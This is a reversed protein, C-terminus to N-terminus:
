TTSIFALGVIKGRYQSLHLDSSNPIKIALDPSPRPIDVAFGAAALLSLAFLRRHL